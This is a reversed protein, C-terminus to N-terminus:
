VFLNKSFFCYIVGVGNEQREAAPSFDVGWREKLLVIDLLEKKAALWRQKKLM